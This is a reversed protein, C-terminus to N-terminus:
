KKFLTLLHEYKDKKRKLFLSNPTYLKEYLKKTSNTSYVFSYFDKDNSSDKHIKVSPIQYQEELTKIIWELVGKSAGCIGWRLSKNNQNITGDGDFYGRIYDIHFKSSLKHPPTLTYTKCPIVGYAQLDEKHEKCAWELSTFCFGRKDEREKIPNDIQVIEKIKELIEKDVSSLEIRIKNGKKSINGDAALFGVLWAMNSSENKFFDANKKYQQSTKDYIQNSLCISTHFDRIEINHKKLITKVASSSLNFRRGSKLQGFNKNTYNDIIENEIEELSLTPYKRLIKTEFASRIYVNNERLVNMVKDQGVHYKQSLEKITLIHVLYDNILEEM